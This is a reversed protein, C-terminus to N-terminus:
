DRGSTRSKVLQIYPPPSARRISMFVAGVRESLDHFEVAHRRFVLCAYGRLPAEEGMTVWSCDLEVLVDEPMGKDCIPCANRGETMAAEAEEAEGAEAHEQRRRHRPADEAIGGHHRHYERFGSVNM